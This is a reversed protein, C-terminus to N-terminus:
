AVGLSGSPQLATATFASFQQTSHYTLTQKAGEFRSLLRSPQGDLLDPRKALKHDAEKHRLSPWRLKGQPWAALDDPLRPQVGDPQWMMNWQCDSPVVLDRGPM